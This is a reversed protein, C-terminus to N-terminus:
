AAAEAAELWGRLTPKLREPIAAELARRLLDVPRPDAYVLDFLEIARINTEPARILEATDGAQVSGETLVRTYFGPRRAGAFRKVFGGDGLRMALTACPIRPFTVELLLKGIALRDGLRVDPWWSSLTLNEGFTGPPLPRGLEGAWFAYDDGGYLYVAQDPGGHYKLNVITDQALGLTGVPVREDTPEKVIGTEIEAGKHSVVQRKGRCVAVIDFGMDDM